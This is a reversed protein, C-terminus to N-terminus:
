CNSCQVRSQYGGRGHVQESTRLTGKKEQEGQYGEPWWRKWGMRAHMWLVWLVSVPPTTQKVRSSWIWWCGEVWFRLEAKSVACAVCNGQLGQSNCHKGRFPNAQVRENIANGAWYVTDMKGAHYAAGINCVILPPTPEEIEEGAGM